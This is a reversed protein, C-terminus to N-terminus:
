SDNRAKNYSSNSSVRIVKGKIPIRMDYYSFFIDVTIERRVPLQNPRTYTKRTISEHTEETWRVALPATTAAAAVLNLGDADSM